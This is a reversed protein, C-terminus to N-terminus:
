QLKNKADSKQINSLMHGIVKCLTKDPVPKVLFEEVGIRRSERWFAEQDAIWLVPLSKRWEKLKRCNRVGTVGDLAVVALDCSTDPSPVQSLQNEPQGDLGGKWVIVAGWERLVQEIAQTGTDCYLAIKM